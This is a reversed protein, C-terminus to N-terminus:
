GFGFSGKTPRGYLQGTFRPPKTSSPGRVYFFRFLFLTKRTGLLATKLFFNGSVASPAHRDPFARSLPTPLDPSLPAAHSRLPRLSEWYFFCSTLPPKPYLGTLLCICRDVFYTCPPFNIDRRSGVPPPVLPSSKVPAQADCVWTL